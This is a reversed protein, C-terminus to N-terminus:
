VENCHKRCIKRQTVLIIDVLVNCTSDLFGELFVTGLANRHGVMANTLVDVVQQLILNHISEVMGYHSVPVYFQIIGATGYFHSFDM